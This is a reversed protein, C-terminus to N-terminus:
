PKRIVPVDAADITGAVALQPLDAKKRTGQSKIERGAAGAPTAARWKAELMTADRKGSKVKGAGLLEDVAEYLMYLKGKEKIGVKLALQQATIGASGSQRIAALLTESLAHPSPAPKQKPM